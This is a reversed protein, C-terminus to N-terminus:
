IKNYYNTAYKIFQLASKSHVKDKRTVIYLNRKNSHIGLPFTLVKEQKVLDEVAINSIMSIGLGSVISNRIAEQDNMHAVTLLTSPDIELSSLFKKSEQQTGSNDDRFIIPEKLLEFIPNDLTTYKQFNSNNPTAIVIEDQYFMKFVCRFDDITTGVFGIDLSGDLVRNIVQISGSQWIHFSLQRRNKRFSSLIEPLLYTSPITSAGISISSSELESFESIAADRIQLIHRAYNYFSHGHETVIFQKTTRHILLTHLEEELSHIYSSVTPQSLYMQKAASSFSQTDVAAVFAELQNFNM